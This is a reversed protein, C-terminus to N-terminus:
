PLCVPTHKAGAETVLEAIGNGDADTAAVFKGSTPYRSRSFSGNGYNLYVYLTQDNNNQTAFALDKFGDGNLDGATLSIAGPENRGTIGNTLNGNGDNWWISLACDDSTRVSALEPYGDGNLDVALLHCESPGIAGGGIEVCPAFGSNGDNMCTYVEGYQMEAILDLYGDANLDAATLDAIFSWLSVDFDVGPAFTGNGNNFLVRIRSSQPSLIVMPVALDVHGDANLDAAIFSKIGTNVSHDVPTAFTGNGNNLLIRVSSTTTSIVLDLAGDANMDVVELVRPNFGLAQDIQPAYTGNGNNLLVSISATDANLLVLDDFGDANLDASTVSVYPNAGALNYTDYPPTFTANGVNFLIHRGLGHPVVLDALGDGNLEGVQGAGPFYPLTKPTFTGDGNNLLPTAGWVDPYGNGTFDAVVAGGGTYQVAPAFTGNGNNILVSTITKNTTILDIHGDLNIDRALVDTLPIGAPYNIQAAFAGAGDGFRVGVVSTGTYALALDAFGDGNLDAADIDDFIGNSVTINSSYTGDPNNMSLHLTTAGGEAMLLGLHGDGNFDAAVIHAIGYSSSFSFGGLSTFGGNTDNRLASLSVVMNSVLGKVPDAYGDNNLDWLRPSHSGSSEGFATDLVFGGNGNNLYTDSATLYGLGGVFKGSRTAYMDDLGDGNLDGLAVSNLQSSGTVLPLGPM